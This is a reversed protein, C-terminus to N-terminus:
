HGLIKLLYYRGNRLSKHQCTSHKCYEGYECTKCNRKNLRCFSKWKQRWTFGTEGIGDIVFMLSFFEIIMALIFLVVQWWKPNPEVFPYKWFYGFIVNTIILIERYFRGFFAGLM